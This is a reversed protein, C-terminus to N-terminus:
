LESVMIDSEQLLGPSHTDPHKKLPQPFPSVLLHPSSARWPQTNLVSSVSWRTSPLSHEHRGRKRLLLLFMLFLQRVPEQWRRDRRPKFIHGKFKTVLKSVEQGKQSGGQVRGGLLRILVQGQRYNTVRLMKEQTPNWNKMTCSALIHIGSQAKPTKHTRGLTHPTHLQKTCAGRDRLSLPNQAKGKWNFSPLSQLCAMQETACGRRLVSLRCMLCIVTVCVCFSIPWRGVM